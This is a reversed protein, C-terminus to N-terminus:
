QHSIRGGKWEGNTSPSHQGLQITKVEQGTAVGADFLVLLAAAVACAVGSLGFRDISLDM